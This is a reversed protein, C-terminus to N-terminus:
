SSFSYWLKWEVKWLMCICFLFLVAPDQPIIVTFYLSLIQILDVMFLSSIHEACKNVWFNKNFCGWIRIIHGCVGLVKISQRQFVIDTSISVMGSIRCLLQSCGCRISMFPLCALSLFCVQLMFVSSNHITLHVQKRLHLLSLHYFSLIIGKENGKLSNPKQWFRM